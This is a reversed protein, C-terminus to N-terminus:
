AAGGLKTFAEEEEQTVPLTKDVYYQAKPGCAYLRESSCFPYPRGEIKGTVLNVAPEQRKCIGYLPNGPAEYERLTEPNFRTVTETEFHACNICFKDSM